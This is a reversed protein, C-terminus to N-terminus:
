ESASVPLGSSSARLHSQYHRTSLGSLNQSARRPHRLRCFAGAGANHPPAAGSQASCGAAAAAAAQQQPRLFPALQQAAEQVGAPQQLPVLLLELLQMLVLLLELLQMLVLLL